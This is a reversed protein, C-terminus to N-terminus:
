KDNKVKIQEAKTTRTRQQIDQLYMSLVSFACDAEKYIHVCKTLIAWESGYKKM